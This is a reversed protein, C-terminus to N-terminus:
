ESIDEMKDAPELIRKVCDAASIMKLGELTYALDALTNTDDELWIRLMYRCREQGENSERFFKIEDTGYGLKAGLKEWDNGIIICLERMQDETATIIKHINADDSILPDTSQLESDEEVLGDQPNEMMLDNDTDMKNETEPKHKSKTENLKKRVNELYESIPAHTLSFFLSSQRALLRLARWEYSPDTKSPPQELYTDIPPLFNRDEGRCAQLNDPCLNWLRTLESNGMYFKNQKTADHIIDGLNRRQKKAPIKSQDDAPPEPRKFEKCGENKWNNWLEERKLMHRVTQAFKKGNPPTEELLRYVKAETEKVFENQSSTLVQSDSKFKVTSTLYQFLILCQVLVSRRFNADSLQLALLKPNTLFKAFFHQLDEPQDEIKIGDNSKAVPVSGRQEELKFSSFASLVSAIHGSFKKWNSPDYCQNPNRYFDQLAWFKTYLNYDIKVQINESQVSDLVEDNADVDFETLNELNFESIINLGSRESFPFFTALFLLIRGCFVTNQARSFRKLLDNCMRLLNNKCAAFFWSEKWVSVNNEVYSFLRECQDLTVTDFVDSMLVVPITSTCIDQRCAAISLTILAEVNATNGIVNESLLVDRFAQDLITKKDNGSGSANDFHSKLVDVENSKYCNSLVDKFGAHVVPFTATSM